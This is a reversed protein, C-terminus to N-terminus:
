EAQERGEPAQRLRTSYLLVDRRRRSDLEHFASLLECDELNVRMLFRGPEQDAPEFPKPAQPKIPETWSVDYIAAEAANAFLLSPEIEVEGFLQSLTLSLRRALDQLRKSEPLGDGREWDSVSVGSKLGIATALDGQNLGLRERRLKLIDKFVLQM